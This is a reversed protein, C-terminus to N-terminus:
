KIYGLSKLKEYPANALNDNKHGLSGQTLSDGLWVIAKTSATEGAEEPAETKDAEEPQAAEEPEEAQPTEETVEPQLAEEVVETQATEDTAETQAAEEAKPQAGAEATSVSGCGSFMLAPICVLMMVTATFRTRKM